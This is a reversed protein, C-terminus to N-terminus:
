IRRSKANVPFEIINFIERFRDAIRDGYRERIETTTKNTTIHTTFFPRGKDYRRLMVDEMVEIKTGFYQKIPEAGFDDFCVAKISHMTIMGSHEYLTRKHSQYYVELAEDGGKAFESAVERCNIVGYNRVPNNSLLKAITTKGCGTNGFLM